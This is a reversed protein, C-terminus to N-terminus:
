RGHAGLERLDTQAGSGLIRRTAAAALCELSDFVVLAEAETVAHDSLDTCALVIGDCASSYAHVLELLRSRQGPRLDLAGRIHAEVLEQESAGPYLCDIGHRRLRQGYLDARCTTTTGLILVRRAGAATIADVTADLMDVHDIGRETCLSRLEDQLTNCPMVLQEAGGRVLVDIAGALMARVQALEPSRPGVRGALYANEIERTMAVSHVLLEPLAGIQASFRGALSLYLRATAKPGMGGVIGLV